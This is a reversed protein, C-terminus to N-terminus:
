AQHRDRDERKKRRQMVKEFKLKCEYEKIDKAWKTYDFQEEKPEPRVYNSERNFVMHNTNKMLGSRSFLDSGQGSNGKYKDISIMM